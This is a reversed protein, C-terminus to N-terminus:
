WLECVTVSISLATDPVVGEDGRVIPSHLTQSPLSVVQTDNGTPCRPVVSPGQARADGVCGWARAPSVLPHHLRAGPIGLHWSQRKPVLFRSKFGLGATGLVVLSNRKRLAWRELCYSQRAGQTWLLLCLASPLCSAAPRWWGSIVRQTGACLRWCSLLSQKCSTLNICCMDQPQRRLILELLKSKMLFIHSFVIEMLSKLLRGLIFLYSKMCPAIAVVSLRWDGEVMFGEGSRQKGGESHPIIVADQPIGFPLWFHPPEILPFLDLVHLNARGRRRREKEGQEVEHGGVELTSLCDPYLNNNRSCSGTVVSLYELSFNRGEKGFNNRKRKKRGTGRSLLWQLAPQLKIHGALEVTM